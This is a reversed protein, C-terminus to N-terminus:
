AHKRCVELSEDQPESKVSNIIWLENCYLHLTASRLTYTLIKNCCWEFWTPGFIDDLWMMICFYTSTCAFSRKDDYDKMRDTLLKYWRTTDHCRLNSSLTSMEILGWKSKQLRDKDATCTYYYLVLSLFTQTPLRDLISLWGMCLVKM